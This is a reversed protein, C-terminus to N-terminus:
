TREHQRRGKMKEIVFVLGAHLAFLLVMSVVFIAWGSFSHLFGEAAALGWYHTLIATVFVRIGNSFIALPFVFLVLLWRMWVRKELFYGYAVALAILSMLSRIGSCAEVVELTYGPLVLLNGERLVPMVDVRELCFTAFRSAVLQLPFVLENFILAPIPIALLFLGIPFTLKRLLPLGAFYLVLGVCTGWFAMRTLFLEAGLSGVLLLLLSFIVILAGWWTPKFPVSALEEKQRWIIFACLFPIVLGHSYNPDEWWQRALIALTPGFVAAVTLALVAARWYRVILKPQEEITTVMQTAAVQTSTTM